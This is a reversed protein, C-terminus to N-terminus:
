RQSNAFAEVSRLFREAVEAPLDDGYSLESRMVKVQVLLDGACMAPQSLITAELHWKHDIAADYASAQSPVVSLRAVKAVATDYLLGLKSIETEM